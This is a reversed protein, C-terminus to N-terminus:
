RYRQVVFANKIGYYEKLSEIEDALEKENEVLVTVKITVCGEKLVIEAFFNRGINGTKM